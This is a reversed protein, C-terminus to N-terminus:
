ALSTGCGGDSVGANMKKVEPLVPLGFPTVCVWSVNPQSTALAAVANPKEGASTTSGAVEAECMAADEMTRAPSDAPEHTATARANVPSSIRGSSRLVRGENRHM